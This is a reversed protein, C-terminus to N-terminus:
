FVTDPLRRADAPGVPGRVVNGSASLLLFGREPRGSSTEPAPRLRGIRVVRPAVRPRLDRTAKTAVGPRRSVATEATKRRRRSAEPVVARRSVSLLLVPLGLRRLRGYTVRGLSARLGPRARGRTADHSGSLRESKSSGLEASRCRVNGPGAPSSLALRPSELASGSPLTTCGRPAIWTQFRTM